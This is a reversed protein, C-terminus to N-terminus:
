LACASAVQQAMYCLRNILIYQTFYDYIIWIIVYVVLGIVNWPSVSWCILGLIFMWVLYGIM